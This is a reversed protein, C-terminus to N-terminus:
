NITSYHWGNCNSCEYIRYKKKYEKEIHLRERRAEIESSFRKKETCSKIVMKKFIRNTSYM